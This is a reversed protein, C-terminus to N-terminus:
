LILLKNNVNRYKQQDVRRISLQNNSEIKDINNVKRVSTNFVYSNIGEAIQVMEPANGENRVYRDGDFYIYSCSLIRNLMEAFWVPCGEANGLTFMKQTSESSYLDIVDEDTTTFQENTVSFAWNIDKFGGPARFDFFYHIDSIWFVGDKRQKNDKMSYQILTTKSLKLEDNTIEFIESPFGNISFQYFGNEMGTIITYYLKTTDNMIWIKWDVEFSVSSMIDIIRGSISEYESIAIVEVLIQDSPSFKQIYRSAMGFKDNSPTFFLPTFPSIRYM